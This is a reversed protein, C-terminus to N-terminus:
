DGTLKQFDDIYSVIKESLYNKQRTTLLEFIQVTMENMASEYAAIAQQQQPSRSTEPMDIWQRFLAAIKDEGAQNNLLSILSAHKAERQEIYYKTALPIHLSMGTIKEEQENSLNGVLRELFEIHREARADLMEQESDRLVKKRQKNNRKAFTDGLEAIQKSDLASLLHAAPQIMSAVTLKYLRVNEARLRMVDDATLVDSTVSKNLDQLFATYQPLAHKRHWRMYDEVELRIKDKQAANFSTYGNIWYRLLWDAHDYGFRATSCGGCLLALALIIFSSKHINM